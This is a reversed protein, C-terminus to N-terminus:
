AMRRLVLHIEQNEENKEEVLTFGQESLRSIAAHYAYRQQLKDTFDKKSLGMVGFWDAVIEYKGKNLKLGIPYGVDFKILIDAKRNAGQFGNVILDAGEEFKMDMDQLAALLFEKEVLNTKLRSFHSM